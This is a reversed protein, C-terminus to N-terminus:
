RDPGQFPGQFLERKFNHAHYNFLRCIADKDHQELHRMEAVGLKVLNIFAEFREELYKENVIIAKM